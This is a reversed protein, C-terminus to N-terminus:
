GKWHQSRILKDTSQRYAPVYVHWTPVWASKKLPSQLIQPKGITCSAGDVGPLQPKIVVMYTIKLTIVRQAGCHVPLVLWKNCIFRNFDLVEPFTSLM